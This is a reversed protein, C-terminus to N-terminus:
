NSETFKIKLQLNLTATTPAISNTLFSFQINPLRNIDVQLWNDKSNISNFTAINKGVAGIVQQTVFSDVFNSRLAMNIGSKGDYKYSNQVSDSYIEIMGFFQTDPIDFVGVCKDLAIFCETADKPKIVDVFINIPKSTDPPNSIVIQHITEM